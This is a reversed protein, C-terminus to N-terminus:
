AEEGMSSDFTTWGYYLLPSAALLYLYWYNANWTLSLSGDQSFLLLMLGFFAFISGPLLLVLPTMPHDRLHDFPSSAEEEKEQMEAGYQHPTEEWNEQYPQQQYSGNLDYPNAQQYPSPPAEDQVPAKQYAPPPVTAEQHHSVPMEHHQAEPPMEEPAVNGVSCGCYPCYTAHRYVEGECNWCLKKNSVTAM